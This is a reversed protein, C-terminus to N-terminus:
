ARKAFGPQLWSPDTTKAKTASKWARNFAEGTLGKFDAKATAKLGDKTQHRFKKHSMIEILWDGCRAEAAGIPKQKAKHEFFRVGSYHIGPGSVTGDGLDFDLSRWLPAEIRVPRDGPKIPSLFGMAYWIGDELLGRFTSLAADEDERQDYDADIWTVGSAYLQTDTRVEPDRPQEPVLLDLVERVTLGKGNDDSM